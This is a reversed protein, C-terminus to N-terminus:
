ADRPSPSTYLLCTEYGVFSFLMGLMNYADAELYSYDATKEIEISKTLADVTDQYRGMHFAAEGRFFAAESLENGDSDANLYQDYSDLLEWIDEKPANNYQYSIIKERLEKKLAALGM